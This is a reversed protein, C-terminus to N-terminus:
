TIKKYKKCLKKQMEEMYCYSEEDFIAVLYYKM